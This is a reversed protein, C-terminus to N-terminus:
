DDFWSWWAQHSDQQRVELLLPPRFRAPDVEIEIALDWTGMEPDLYLRAQDHGADAAVSLFRESFLTRELDRVLVLELPATAHIEFRHRSKSPSHSLHMRAGTTAYCRGNELAEFLDDRRLEKALVATIGLFAYRSANPWEIGVLGGPQGFHQDADAVLNLHLGNKWQSLISTAAEEPFMRDGRDGHIPFMTQGGLSCGHWSYVEALKQRPLLTPDGYRYGRQVSSSYWLPHHVVILANSDSGIAHALEELRNAVRVAGGSGRAAFAAVPEGRASERFVVHRHGDGPHTWEFGAFVLFRGEESLEKELRPYLSWEFSPAEAHETLACFDLRTVERAFRLTRRPTSAGHGGAATHNHLSGFYPRALIEEQVVIPNSLGRAVIRGEDDRAVVEIRHVGAPLGELPLDVGEPQRVDKPGSVVVSRDDDGIKLELRVEAPLTVASSTRPGSFGNMFTVVLHFSENMAAAAPGLVRLWDVKPDVIRVPVIGQAECSDEGTVVEAFLDLDIPLTPTLPGGDSSGLCIQLCQDRPWGDELVLEFWSRGTPVVEVLV